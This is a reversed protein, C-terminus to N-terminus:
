VVVGAGSDSAGSSRLADLGTVLVPAGAVRQGAMARRGADIAEARLQDGGTPAPFVLAYETHRDASLFGADGTSPYSALRSGPEAARLRAFAAQAERAHSASALDKGPAKVVAVLPAVQGGSGFEHAIRESTRVAAGPVSFQQSLAGGLSST